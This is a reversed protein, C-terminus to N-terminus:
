QVDLLGDELRPRWAPSLGRATYLGNGLITEWGSLDAGAGATVVPNALAPSSLGVSAVASLVISTGLLSM